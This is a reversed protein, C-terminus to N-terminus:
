ERFHLQPIEALDFEQIREPGLSEVKELLQRAEAVLRDVQVGMCVPRYSQLYGIGRHLVKITGHYNRNSLHHFGVGVQLVGKYFNRISADKEARWVGELTEHQEWFLRSNFQEFARVMEPTPLDQCRLDVTDNMNTQRM